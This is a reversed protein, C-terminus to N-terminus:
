EFDVTGTGNVSTSLGSVPEWSATTFVEAPVQEILAEEEGWGLKETVLGEPAFRWSASIGFVTSVGWFVSPIMFSAVGRPPANGGSSSSLFEEQITYMSKAGAESFLTIDFGEGQDPVAEITSSSSTISLLEFENSEAAQSGVTAIWSNLLFKDLIGSPNNVDAWYWKLDIEATVPKFLHDHFKIPQDEPHEADVSFELISDDIVEITALKTKGRFFPFSDLDPLFGFVVLDEVTALFM